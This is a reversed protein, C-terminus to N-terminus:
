KTSEKLRVEYELLIKSQVKRGEILELLARCAARGLEEVNFRLSTIGIPYHELLKSYHCSAIKIDEPVSINKEELKHVVVDCIIDDQCLICDVKKKLLEDVAQEIKCKSDLNLYILNSDVVRGNGSHAEEYGQYRIRNVMQSMGSGLYAISNLGKSLLIETLERCAALNDHDVQVCDSDPIQGICVFPIGNEQLLESYVDDCYTRSLIMGDVKKNRILRELSATDVGDGNVVLLDYDNLQAIEGVAYMCNQFFPMEALTKVEPLVMAINGTRSNALSQAAANPHYNHEEIYNLIKERTENGIRGKGSIARSVTSPSVGLDRAVDHITVNKRIVKAQM